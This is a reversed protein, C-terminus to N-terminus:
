SSNDWAFTEGKRLISFGFVGLSRRGNPVKPSTKNTKKLVMKKSNGDCNLLGTKRLNEEGVCGCM